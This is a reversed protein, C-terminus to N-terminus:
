RSHFRQLFTNNWTDGQFEELFSFALVDRCQRNIKDILWSFPSDTFLRKGVLDKLTNVRLDINAVEELYSNSQIVSIFQRAYKNFDKQNGFPCRLLSQLNGLWEEEEELIEKETEKLIDKLSKNYRKNVKLHKVQGRPNDFYKQNKRGNENEMIEKTEDTNM